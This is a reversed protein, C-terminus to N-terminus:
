TKSLRPQSAAGPPSLGRPKRTYAWIASGPSGAKQGPWYHTWNAQRRAFTLENDMTIGEDYKEFM